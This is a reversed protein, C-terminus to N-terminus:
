GGMEVPQIHHADYRDGKRRILKGDESYQDKEYRPWEQGNKEEWEKIIQEKIKEFESKKEQYEPDSVKKWDKANTERADGAPSKDQVEENYDKGLSILEQETLKKSETEARKDQNLKEIPQKKDVLDGSAPQRKITSTVEKIASDMTSAKPLEPLVKSGQKTFSDKIDKQKHIPLDKFDKSVLVISNDDYRDPKLTTRFDNEGGTKVDIKLSDRIDVPYKEPRLTDGPVQAEDVYPGLKDQIVDKTIKDRLAGQEKINDSNQYSVLDQRLQPNTKAMNQIDNTLTKPNHMSSLKKYFLVEKPALAKAAVAKFAQSVLALM